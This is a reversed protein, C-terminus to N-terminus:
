VSRENREGKEGKLVKEQTLPLGKLIINNLIGKFDTIDILNYADYAQALCRSLIIRYNEINRENEDLLLFPNFNHKKIDDQLDDVADILYIWRGIHYGFQEYVIKLSKDEAEISLLNSLLRATPEAAMDLCCDKDKESDFQSYVMEKAFIDIQPYKKAAKKRWHFFVPKIVKIFTQ